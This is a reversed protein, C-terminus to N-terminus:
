ANAGEIVTEAATVTRLDSLHHRYWNIGALKRNLALVEPHGDLFNV